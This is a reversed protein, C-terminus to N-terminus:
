FDYRLGVSAGGAAMGAEAPYVQAGHGGASMTYRAADDNGTRAYAFLLRFSKGLLYDFGLAIMDANREEGAAILRYYQGKVTAKTTVRYSAGGGITNVRLSTGASPSKIYAIQGLGAIRIDGATYALSFRFAESRTDQKREYAGAAYFKRDSYVISTSYSERGVGPPNNGADTNTSLNFDIVVGSISPSTYQISNRFRTDFDYNGGHVDRLRTLNRNDGIQNGFFDVTLGVRKLPTDFHGFQIKGFNGQLGVFTDRSAFNGAGNDFFVEQEIQIFGKLNESIDTSARFGLYSSNSSLNMGGEDGNYLYATSVHARGYISVSPSSQANATATGALLVVIASVFLCVRKM